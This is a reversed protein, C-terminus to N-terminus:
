GLKKVDALIEKSARERSEVAGDLYRHADISTHEGAFQCNGSREGEAGAFKSDQSVKWYSYSDKADIGAQRLRYACTLGALGPRCCGGANASSAEAAIRSARILREFLATHAM